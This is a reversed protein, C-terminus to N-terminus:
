ELRSSNWSPPSVIVFPDFDPVYKEASIGTDETCGGCDQGFTLYKSRFM